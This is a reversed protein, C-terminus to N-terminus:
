VETTAWFHNEHLCFQLTARPWVGPLPSYFAEGVGGCTVTYCVINVCFVQAAATLEIDGAWKRPIHMEAVYAVPDAIVFPGRVIDYLGDCIAERAQAAAEPFSHMVGGVTSTTFDYGEPRKDAQDLMDVLAM